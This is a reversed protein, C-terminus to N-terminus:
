KPNIYIVIIYSLLIIYTWYFVDSYTWQYGKDLDGISYKIILAMILPIVLENPFNSKNPIQTVIITGLINVISIWYLINYNM